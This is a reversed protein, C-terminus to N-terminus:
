RSGTLATPAGTPCASAQGRPGPVGQMPELRRQFPGPRRARSVPTPEAGHLDLPEKLDQDDRASRGGHPDDSAATVASAASGAARGPGRAPGRRGRASRRASASRSRAGASTGSGAIALGAYGKGGPCIAAAAATPKRRPRCGRGARWDASHFGAAFTFAWAALPEANLRIGGFDNARAQCLGPREPRTRFDLGRRPEGSHGALEGLDARLSYHNLAGSIGSRVFGPM